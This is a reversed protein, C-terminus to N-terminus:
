KNFNINISAALTPDVLQVFMKMNLAHQVNGAAAVAPAIEAYIQAAQKQAEPQTKGLEWYVDALEGKYQLSNPAVKLLSQYFSIANDFEKSWFAERAARLLEPESSAKATVTETTTPVQVTAAPQEAAQAPQQASPAAQSAPATAVSAQAPAAAQQAPVAEAHTVVPANGMPVPKAQEEKAEHTAHANKEQAEHTAHAEKEKAEHTAHAEQAEKHNAGDHKSHHPIQGLLIAIIALLWGFVLPHKLLWRLSNM